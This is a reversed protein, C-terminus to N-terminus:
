ERNGLSVGGGEGEGSGGGRGGERGQPPRVTDGCSRGANRRHKKFPFAKEVAPFHQAGQAVCRPPPPPTPPMRRGHFLPAGFHQSEGDRTEIGHGENTTSNAEEFKQTDSSCIRCRAKVTRDRHLAAYHRIYDFPHWPELAPRPEAFENM